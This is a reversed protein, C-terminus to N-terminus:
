GEGDLELIQALCDPVLIDAPSRRRLLLIQRDGNQVTGSRLKEGLDIHAIGHRVPGLFLIVGIVHAKAAQHNAILHTRGRTGFRQLHIQIFSIRRNDTADRDRIRGPHM